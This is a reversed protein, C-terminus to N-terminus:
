LIMLYDLSILYVKPPRQLELRRGVLFLRARHEQDGNRTWIYICFFTVTLGTNNKRLKLIDRNAWKDLNSFAWSMRYLLGAELSTM